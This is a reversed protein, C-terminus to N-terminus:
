PTGGGGDVSSEGSSDLGERYRVILRALVRLAELARSDEGVTVVEVVIIEQEPELPRIV